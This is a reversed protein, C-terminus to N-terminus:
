DQKKGRLMRRTLVDSTSHKDHSPTDRIFIPESLSYSLFELDVAVVEAAPTSIAITVFNWCRKEKTNREM